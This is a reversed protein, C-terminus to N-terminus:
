ARDEAAGFKQGDQWYSDQGAFIYIRHEAKIVFKGWALLDGVANWVGYLYNGAPLGASGFVEFEATDRAYATALAIAAGIVQLRAIQDTDNLFKCIFRPVSSAPSPLSPWPPACSGYGVASKAWRRVAVEPETSLPMPGEGGLRVIVEWLPTPGEGGRSLPSPGDGGLETAM